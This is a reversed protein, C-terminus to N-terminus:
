KICFEVFFHSEQAVTQGGRFPKYIEGKNVIEATPIKEKLKEALLEASRGQKYFFGQRIVYNGKSNKSLTHFPVGELQKKTLKM